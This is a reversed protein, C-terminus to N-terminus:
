SARAGHRLNHEAILTDVRQEMERIRHERSERDREITERLKDISSGISEHVKSHSDFAIKIRADAAPEAVHKRLAMLVGWYAGCAVVLMVLFQVHEMFDRPPGSIATQAALSTSGGLLLASAATQHRVRGLWRMIRGM